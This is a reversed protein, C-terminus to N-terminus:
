TPVKFIDEFEDFLAQIEKAHLSEQQESKTELLVFAWIENGKLWKQIQLISADIVSTCPNSGDRVLKVQVGEDEFQLMNNRWDCNM